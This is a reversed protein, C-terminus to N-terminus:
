FHRRYLDFARSSEPPIFDFIAESDRQLAEVLALNREYGLYEQRMDTVLDHQNRQQDVSPKGFVVKAGCAQAYYSAWIDDMRGIGPFLFYDALVGADIFTNQSDFPAMANSALPFCADDFMCNPTHEMRCIADIDPEINWFDAQVNPVMTQTSQDSYDRHSLLQLPYGRHWLHPYNTAGLPDFVPLDTQYFAVEVHRGVMLGSGWTPYPLNDDDVSAIVDAGMEKAMLFGFNRRQICNWGIADSLEPDIRQQDDPGLYTGHELRYDDPTRRDGVVVLHWDPLSDFARVADTPPNVTTSVIVKM